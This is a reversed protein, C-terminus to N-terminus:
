ARQDLIYKYAITTFTGFVMLSLMLGVLWGVIPINKLLTILFVGIIVTRWSIELNDSKIFYKWFYSGLFLATFTGTLAFIALYLLGLYAMIGWGFFTLLLILLVIPTIFMTIFGIGIKKWPNVSIENVIKGSFKPLVKIFVLLTVISMLMGFLLGGIEGSFDKKTLQSQDNLKTYETGGLVKATSSINGEKQSSYKLKGSIDANSDLTLAAVNNFNVDGRVSGSLNVNGVYGKMVNGLIKGRMTVTSGFVIVDGSVLSNSGLVVDNGCVVLDGKITGNINVTGGAVRVSQGVEGNLNVINGTAFLGQQVAGNITVNGGAIALDGSINADVVPNEGVLYLNKPSENKKIIEANRLDAAFSFVPLLLIIGVFSLLYKRM